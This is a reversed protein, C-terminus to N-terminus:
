RASELNPIGQLTRLKRWRAYQEAKAPDPDEEGKLWFCLWDVSGQQSAMRDWPKQLIHFGDPIYLMDVPKNLRSLGAFWEWEGVLSYTGIAQILIPTQVRDLLFGPSRKLWLALGEGFPPAGIIKERYSETFEIQNAFAVYQFYGGDLGDASVAVAFHYKSHTLTYKVLWCTHSYGILGVRDWDIMGKGRLYEIAGEYNQMMRPAEDPTGAFRFEPDDPVQLVLIGKSALPQAANATSYPGDIWFERPNYGHTQVVLPYKRGPVYDPPLYLAGEVERGDDGASWKIPEVKGLALEKFQPNLDLLMTRQGTTPDLAIIRPPTNVDQEASVQPESDNPLVTGRKTHEWVDGKKRYCEVPGTTSERSKLQLTQTLGDWRLLKSDRDTIKAVELSPVRVEVVFTDKKRAERESGEVVDLPLFVGTVVVSRSDPLWTVESGTWNSVPGNILARSEGTEIDILDYRRVWTPAGSRIKLRFIRNLYGQKDQYERWFSPPDTVNTEVVLYRGDPSLFLPSTAFRNQINLRTAREAGGDTLFLDSDLTNTSNGTLVDPFSEGSVHFGTSPVNKFQMPPVEAVYAIRGNREAVSYALLNTPHSTLRKVEGSECNVSYLQSMGGPGEGLFLITDSDHWSVENIGERNSSSAFSVLTRPHPNDFVEDVKYLLMSYETTNKELNGKKTVVVFHKRDPSFSAFDKALGGGTHLMAKHGAIRTMRIADPITVTRRNEDESRSQAQGKAPTQYSSVFSHGDLGDQLYGEASASFAFLFSLLYSM